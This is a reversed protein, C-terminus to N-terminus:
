FPSIEQWEPVNSSSRIIVNGTATCCGADDCVKLAPAYTGAANYVYSTDGKTTSDSPHSSIYAPIDSTNYPVKFWWGYTTPTLDKCSYQATDNPKYCKSSDTFNVQATNNSLVTPSPSPTFAPSPWPHPTTTFPVGNEWGSDNGQTDTVKVRWYYTKNFGIEDLSPNTVVSVTRSNSTGQISVQLSNFNSEESIQLYSTSENYTGSYDWAFYVLGTGTGYGCYGQSFTQSNNPSTSLSDLSEVQTIKPPMALNASCSADTHGTGSGACTWTWPGSGSVASATGTSCLNTTPKSVYSIGNASGCSGNIVSYTVTATCTPSNCPSTCTSGTQHVVTQNIANCFWSTSYPTPTSSASPFTPTAPSANGPYCFVPNTGFSTSGIPWTKATTASCVGNVALNATCTPSTSGGNLGACTWNATPNFITPFTTNTSNGSTCQANTGLGDNSWSSSGASYTHNNATGCAGNVKGYVRTATCNSSTAGNNLGQCTWTSTSGNSAGLTPAPNPNSTGIACYTFSGPWLEDKVYERAATGCAGNVALTATCVTDAGGDIGACTWETSYPTPTSSASPFTPTASNLTGASCFTDSGFSSSGVPYEKAATGCFGDTTCSAIINCQITQPPVELTYDQATHGLGNCSGYDIDGNTTQLPVNNGYCGGPVGATSDDSGGPIYQLGSYRYYFKGITSAFNFVLNLTGPGTVTCNMYYGNKQDGTLAGCSLGDPVTITKVPPAVSLPIFVGWSIGFPGPCQDSNNTFNRELCAVKGNVGPPPTAGERWEGYPSDSSYGTGVFSIDTSTEGPFYLTINTGCQVTDGCSIVNCTDTNKIGTSYNINVMGQGLAKQWGNNGTDQNPATAPRGESWFYDLVPTEITVTKGNIATRSCGQCLAYFIDTSSIQAVTNCGTPDSGAPDSYGRLPNGWPDYAGACAMGNVNACTSTGTTTSQTYDYQLWTAGLGVAPENCSASGESYSADCSVPTYGTYANNCTKGDTSCQAGGSSYYNFWTVDSAYSISASAGVIALSILIYIKKM